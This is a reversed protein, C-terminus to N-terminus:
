KENTQTVLSIIFESKANAYSERDVGYKAALIKKLECYKQAFEPHNRLVDRFLIHREWTKSRFKILHLHFNQLWVEQRHIVKSLCYYWESDGSQRTVNDYGIEILLPLLASADSQGNVGVMIDVIPKAGLSVVSTSGIHEVGLVRNSAVGLICRKEEEYVLLWRPDYDVIVVPFSVCICGNAKKCYQNYAERAKVEYSFVKL